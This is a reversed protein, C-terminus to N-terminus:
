FIAQGDIDSYTLEKKGQTPTQVLMTGTATGSRYEGSDQDAVVAATKDETTTM